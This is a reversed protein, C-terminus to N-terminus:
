RSSYKTSKYVTQLVVHIKTADTSEATWQRTLMAAHILDRGQDIKIINAWIRWKVGRQSFKQDIGSWTIPWLLSKREFMPSKPSLGVDEMGSYWIPDWIEPLEPVSCKRASVMWSCKLIPPGLLYKSFILTHIKLTITSIGAVFILCNGLM